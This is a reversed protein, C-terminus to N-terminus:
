AAALLKSLTVMAAKMRANWPHGFNLRLCNRYADQASFLAGPAINIGHGLAAQHVRLVDIHPPLEVWTFYGGVPRTARTGKPFYRAVAQLFESQQLALTQRLQRLHRDFGGRQLYAALTAQTPAATALSTSLKNRLIAHTHRGGVVWGVRYGPALSKSFSSCHMVNGEEDYAKAPRPRRTGFYLEGYVDDEILPVGHRALLHVLAAKKDDPMLSGLPNQFNTMLWCAAPKHHRIAQALADLEIGERPHTAVEIAHLGCRELSQLAAYFTPSEVIVADGPRTVAALCLNLAELAGNTIVIDDTHTAIGDALYRLAIARRLAANGPSLDDISSWPDLRQVTAAMVQALRAHPFLTPCPFASGFPVMDRQMTANLVQLVRDSVDVPARRAEAAAATDLEPPLKDPRGVVYYGSRDRARIIGRAELLYYAKFVTSPSVGRTASAKRVPPLRDGVQLVGSLISAAIEDALREYRKM